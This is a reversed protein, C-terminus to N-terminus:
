NITRRDQKSGIIVDWDRNKKQSVNTTLVVM